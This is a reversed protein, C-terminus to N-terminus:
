EWIMETQIKKCKGNKIEDRSEQTKKVFESSYSDEMKGLEPVEIGLERNLWDAVLMRHCFEGAKEHCLLVVDKGLSLEELEKIVSKASLNKLKQNFKPVYESELDNMYSYDPNLKRYLAGNFYRASLAISVPFLGASTYKKLNAFNGTYIKM